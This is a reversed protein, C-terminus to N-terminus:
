RADEYQKSFSVEGTKHDLNMAVFQTVSVNASTVSALKALGNKVSNWNASDSNTVQRAVCYQSCKHHAEVIETIGTAGPATSESIYKIYDATRSGFDHDFTDLQKQTEDAYAQAFAAVAALAKAKADLKSVRRALQAHALAVDAYADCPRLKGADDASKGYWGDIKQKLNKAAMEVKKRYRDLEDTSLKKISWKANEAIQLPDVEGETTMKKNELHKKRCYAELATEASAALSGVIPIPVFKLAGRGMAGFARLAKAGASGKGTTSSRTSHFWSSHWVRQSLTKNAVKANAWTKIDDM